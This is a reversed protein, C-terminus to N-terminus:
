DSCAYRAICFLAEFGDRIGIKKGDHWDRARYRVPLEQVRFGRRAVKATIEPEFGFRNQRLPLNRLLDGRFVKYCTEMDTLRLGTTLNSAATLLRNGFRHVLSSGEHRPELFRSGFVVDAEGSLIPQLLRPIDRPDYELDADQVLVVDGRAHEFGCRLAAGKGENRPKLLLRLQPIEALLALQEQTGDTSGDDIILIEKPIDLALLRAIVQRITARENYVPVVISLCFGPPYERSMQEGDYRDMANLEAALEELEQLQQAIRQTVETEPSSDIWPLHSAPGIPPSDTGFTMSLSPDHSANETM